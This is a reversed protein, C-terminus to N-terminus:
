FNSWCLIFIPFLQFLPLQNFLEYIGKCCNMKSKGSGCNKNGCVLNGECVTDHHCHGQGLGCKPYLTCCSMDKKAPDCSKELVCLTKLYVNVLKNSTALMIINEIDWGWLLEYLLEWSCLQREWLLPKCCLRHWWWLPGPRCWVESVPLLDLWGSIPWM